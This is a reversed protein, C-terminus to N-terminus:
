ANHSLEFRSKTKSTRSEVPLSNQNSVEFVAEPKSGAVTTLNHSPESNRKASFEPEWGLAWLFEGVSRLTLNSQGRLLRSISSKHVGLKDAIEQQTIGSAVKEEAAARLTERLVLSIMKNGAREKPTTRFKFSM